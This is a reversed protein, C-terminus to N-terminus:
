GGTIAGRTGFLKRAKNIRSKWHHDFMLDEDVIIGLSKVM